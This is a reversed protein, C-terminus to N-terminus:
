AAGAARRLVDDDGRRHEVVAPLAPVEPHELLDRPRGRGGRRHHRLQRRGAGHRRGAEVRRHGTIGMAVGIDATKLAPADNVGDGTMAVVAGGRQLAKVIRLKHEPNVRAYVSVDRVARTSRTTTWRAGARRRDRRARRAVIGLERPSSAPPGRSPRRHDDDAPHGRRQARAVAGRAGRRAAPRDHRGARRLRPRARDARGVESASWRTPRCRASPSASRACRRAPSRTTPRSSRARPARRGAAADGRRRARALLARAARRARGQHLGAPAGGQEADTHVTSM